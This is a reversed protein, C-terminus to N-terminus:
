RAVTVLALLPAAIADFRTDDDHARAVLMAGEITALLLQAMNEVADDRRLTGAARGDLLVGRLWAEQDEFYGRVERQVDGPLTPAEAALLGCLCMHRRELLLARYLGIYRVLKDVPDSVARDIAAVRGRVTRRYRAVVSRGLDAKTPFHHHISAKRIGVQVAIDAYSFANYGRVQMLHQAADLIHEDTRGPTQM